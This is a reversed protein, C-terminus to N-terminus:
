SRGYPEESATGCASRYAGTRPPSFPACRSPSKLFIRRHVNGKIGFDPVPLDVLIRRRDHRRFRRNEQDKRVSDSATVVAPERGRGENGRHTGFQGSAERVLVRQNIGDTECSTRQAFGRLRDTGRCRNEPQVSVPRDGSMDTVAVDEFTDWLDNAFNPDEKLKRIAKDSFGKM